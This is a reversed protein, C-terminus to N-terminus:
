EKSLYNILNADGATHKTRSHRGWASPVRIARSAALASSVGIWMPMSRSGWTGERLQEGAEEKGTQVCLYPAQFLLLFLLFLSSSPPSPSSPYLALFVLLSEASFSTVPPAPPSSSVSPCSCPCSFSSGCTWLEKYLQLGGGRGGPVDTRGEADRLHRPLPLEGCIDRPTGPLTKRRLPDKSRAPSWLQAPFLGQPSVPPDGAPPTKQPPAPPLLGRLRATPPPIGPERLRAPPQDEQEPGAAEMTLGGEHGDDSGAPPHSVAKPPGQSSGLHPPPHLGPSSLGSAIGSSPSRWRGPPPDLVFGPSPSVRPVCFRLIASLLCRRCSPLPYPPSPKGLCRWLPFRVNLPFEAIGLTKFCLTLPFIMWLVELVRPTGSCPSWPPPPSVRSVPGGAAWLTVLEPIRPVGPM